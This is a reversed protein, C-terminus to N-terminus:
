KLSGVMDEPRVWKDFEESTLLGLEVAAQRLTTGEKHAKKAIKASAVNLEYVLHEMDYDAMSFANANFTNTEILDAGADLYAKHINEIVDPRVISLLDNNGQLDTHFDAFREGRFDAEKLQYQQIMTGMAGDLILIRKKIAEHLTM